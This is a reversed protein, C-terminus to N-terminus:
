PNGWFRWWSKKQPPSEAGAEAPPVEATVTDRGDFPPAFTVFAVANGKGTNRFYHRVGRNVHAVDGAHMALKRGEIDIVGEGRLVAVTLDHFRHYHPSEADRVVALHHSIWATRGLDVVAVPSSGARAVLADLDITELAQEYRLLLRPSPPTAACGALVSLAAAALVVRQTLM